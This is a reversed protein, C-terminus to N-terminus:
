TKSFSKIAAIAAAIEAEKKGSKNTTPEEKEPFFKLIIPSILSM